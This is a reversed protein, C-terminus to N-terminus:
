KRVGSIEAMLARINKEHDSALERLRTLEAEPLKGRMSPSKLVKSKNEYEALEKYLEQNLIALRDKDRASQEHASVRLRADAPANSPEVSHVARAARPRAVAEPAPAESQGAVAPAAPASTASASRAQIVEIGDRNVYRSAETAQASAIALVSLTMAAGVFTAFQTM